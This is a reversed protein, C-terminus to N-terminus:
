IVRNYPSRSSPCRMNEFSVLNHYNLFTCMSQTNTTHNCHQFSAALPCRLHRVSSHNKKVSISVGPTRTPAHGSRIEAAELARARREVFQGCTEKRQIMCYICHQRRRARGDNSYQRAPKCGIIPVQISKGFKFHLHFRHRM